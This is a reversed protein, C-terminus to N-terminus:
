VASLGIQQLPMGSAIMMVIDKKMVNAVTTILEQNKRYAMSFTFVSVRSWLLM